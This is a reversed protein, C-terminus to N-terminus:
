HGRRAETLEAIDGMIRALEFDRPTYVKAVGLSLLAPRDEDPIIGGVVVPADV